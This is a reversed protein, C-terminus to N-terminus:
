PDLSHDVDSGFNSCKEKDWNPCIRFIEDFDTM